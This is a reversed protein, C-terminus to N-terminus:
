VKIKDGGRTIEGAKIRQGEIDLAATLDLEDGDDFDLELGSLNGLDDDMDLDGSIDLSLTPQGRM